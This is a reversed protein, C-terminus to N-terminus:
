TNLTENQLLYDNVWATLPTGGQGLVKDVSGAYSELYARLIQISGERGSLLEQVWDLDDELLTLDGLELAASIEEGFFANAEVVYQTNMDKRRMDSLLEQEILLRKESFLRGLEQYPSVQRIAPLPANPASLLKEVNDVVSDISQGLFYAPILERLRPIRNFILGGFALLSGQENLLVAISHLRAATTLQQAAFIVLDPKMLAVTEVMQENPVNAGLYVVKLGRRALFLTLMLVPFTHWEGPPCALLVSQRRTPPPTLSILMELRRQAQASAFHEQQVSAKGLYWNNGVEAIGKQLIDICVTEVPFIAFAQSLIDDARVSDFAMTATIWEERLAELREGEIHMSKVFATAGAPHYQELPNEGRELVENWLEVARSISLGEAQRSKLWKITEVDYESYLRHGGPTRQPQPLDYRREWARLVDAKLGTEKLVAKLNYVPTHNLTYM